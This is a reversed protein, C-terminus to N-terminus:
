IYYFTNDFEKVKEFSYVKSHDRETQDHSRGCNCRNILASDEYSLLRKINKKKDGEERFAKWIMNNLKFQNYVDQIKVTSPNLKANNIKNLKECVDQINEM